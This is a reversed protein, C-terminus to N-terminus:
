WFCTPLHAGAASRRTRMWSFFFTPSYRTTSSRAPARDAQHLDADELDVGPVGDGIPELLGIAQHEVEIGAVVHRPALHDRRRPRKAVPELVESELAEELGGAALTQM